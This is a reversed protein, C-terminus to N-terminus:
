ISCSPCKCMGLVMSQQPPYNMIIICCSPCKSRGHKASTPLEDDTERVQLMLDLFDGRQHNDNHRADITQEVVERFFEIDATDAKVGFYYCLKPATIMLFFRALKYPTMSFFNDAKQAFVPEETTLSKCEIGFACSAITDITFRGFKDKMDLLPDSAADSLCSAVLAEATTCVLPYMRKMKGSSFTPSMISRLIKWEEGSKNNLMAEIISGPQDGVKRRDMFSDFDKVLIQKLLDPDCVVLVPNFFEYLGFM